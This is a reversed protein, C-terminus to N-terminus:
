TRRPGSSRRRHQVLPVGICQQGVREVHRVSACIRKTYSRRKGRIAARDQLMSLIAADSHMDARACPMMFHLDDRLPNGEECLTAVLAFRRFVCSAAADTAPDEPALFKPHHTLEASWTAARTPQKALHGRDETCGQGPGLRGGEVVLVPDAALVDTDYQKKVFSSPQKMCSFDCPQTERPNQAHTRRPGEPQQTELQSGATVRPFQPKFFCRFDDFSVSSWPLFSLRRVSM